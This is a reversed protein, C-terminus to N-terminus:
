DLYAPIGSRDRLLAVLGDLWALHKCFLGLAAATVLSWSTDRCDAKRFDRHGVILFIFGEHCRTIPYLQFHVFITFWALPSDSATSLLGQVFCLSLAKFSRLSVFCKVFLTKLCPIFFHNLSFRQKRNVYLVEGILKGSIYRYWDILSFTRNRFYFYLSLFITVGVQFFSIPFSFRFVISVLFWWKLLFACSSYIKGLYIWGKFFFWLGKM